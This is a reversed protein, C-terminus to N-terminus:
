SVTCLFCHMIDPTMLTVKSALVIVNFDKEYKCVTYPALIKTMKISIYKNMKFFLLSRCIIPHLRVSEEMEDSQENMLLWDIIAEKLSTPSGAELLVSSVCETGYVSRPVSCKCLAQALSLASVRLFVLHLLFHTNM